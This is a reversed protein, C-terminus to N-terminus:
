LKLFDLIFTDESVESSDSGKNRYKLLTQIQTSKLSDFFAFYGYERISLVRIRYLELKLGNKLGVSLSFFKRNFRRGTQRGRDFLPRREPFCVESM